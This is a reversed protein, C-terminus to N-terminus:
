QPWPSIKWQAMKVVIFNPLWQLALLVLITGVVPALDLRAVRLPLRRLPKLLNRATTSIFEWVPSNGLFVYSTIVYLLLFVPILYKLSLLLGLGVLAGQYSLRALSHVRTILGLQALFPSMIMWLATVVALPLLLQVLWPWRAARGLHLRVLKQLPDPEVVARNIASVALLWFYFVILLRLFSLVSYLLDFLLLDSRFALSILGIDLKPTWDVPAGIIWYFLARGALLLVLSVGLHWGKVHHTETRKLTGALTTPTARVLVDFRRARWNLWLLLAALNLVLDILAM